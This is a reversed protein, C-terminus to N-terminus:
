KKRSAAKINIFEIFVSFAMAFYIYGKPIHVAFGECLLVLGIMLLFSLALVKLSPHVDVFEAIKGSAMLMIALAIMNAIVMISIHPTLGVATIVSDISFVIDLLSIQVVLSLLTPVKRNKNANSPSHNEGEIKGHIEKTAKFLLFLGGFLLILSKGSFATGFLTFWPQDLKVIWAVISLLGLRSIVAGMLGIKRAKSQQEKPLKGALIAIFIINDIGLVVELATLTGLSIWGEGSFIWEM